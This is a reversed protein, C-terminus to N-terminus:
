EIEALIDMSYCLCLKQGFVNYTFESEEKVLIKTGPLISPDSSSIVTRQIISKGNFAKKKEPPLWLGGSSLTMVSSEILKDGRIVDSLDIEKESEEPECIVYPTNPIIQNNRIIAVIMSLNEIDGYAWVLQRREMNGQYGYKVNDETHFTTVADAWVTKGNDDDSILYQEDFDIQPMFIVRDGKNIHKVSPSVETVMGHRVAYDYQHVNEYSPLAMIISSKTGDKKNVLINEVSERDEKTIKIFIRNKTPQM